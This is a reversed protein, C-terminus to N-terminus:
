KFRSNQYAQMKLLRNADIQTNESLQEDGKIVSSEKKQLENILVGVTDSVQSQKAISYKRRIREIDNGAFALIINAEKSSIKEDIMEIVEDVLSQNSMKKSVFTKPADTFFGQQFGDSEEVLPKAIDIAENTRIVNSERKIPPTSEYDKSLFGKARLSEFARRATNVGCGMYEALKESTLHVEEGQSMLVLLCMKEYIDLSENRFIESEIAQWFEM